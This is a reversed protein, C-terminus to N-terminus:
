LQSADLLLHLAGSLYHLEKLHQLMVNQNWVFKFKQSDRLTDGDASGVTKDVDDKLDQLVEIYAQLASQLAHLEPVAVGSAAVTTEIWHQIKRVAFEIVKCYRKIRRLTNGVEDYKDKLNSLSQSVSVCLVVLQVAVGAVSLASVPEM